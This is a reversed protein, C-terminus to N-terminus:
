RRIAVGVFVRTVTDWNFDHVWLIDIQGKVDITDTIPVLVGGGPGLAVDNGSGFFDESWHMVGVLFQVFPTVQANKTFSMRGGGMFSIDTEEGAFRHWGFDVVVSMTRDTAERVARAFDVGFGGSSGNWNQYSYGAGIVNQQAAAPTAMAAVLAMGMLAKWGLQRVMSGEERHAVAPERGADRRRGSEGVLM